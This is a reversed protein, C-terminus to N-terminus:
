EAGRLVKAEHLWDPEKNELCLLAFAEVVPTALAQLHGEAGDEMNEKWCTQGASIKFFNDYFVCYARPNAVRMNYCEFSTMELEKTRQVSSGCPQQKLTDTKFSV